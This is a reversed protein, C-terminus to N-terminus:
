INKRNIMFCLWYNKLEVKFINQIILNQAEFTFSNQNNLLRLCYSSNFIESTTSKISSKEFKMGCIKKSYFGIIWLIIETRRRFTPKVIWCYLDKLLYNYFNGYKSIGIFVSGYLVVHFCSVICKQKEPWFCFLFM